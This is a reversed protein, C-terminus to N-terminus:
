CVVRKSVTRLNALWGDVPEHRVGRVPTGFSLSRGIESVYLLYRFSIRKRPNLHHAM